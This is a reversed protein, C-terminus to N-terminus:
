QQAPWKGMSPGFDDATAPRGLADDNLTITVPTPPQASPPLAAGIDRAAQKVKEDLLLWAKAMADDAMKELMIDDINTLGLPTAATLAKYQALLMKKGLDAKGRLQEGNKLLLNIAAAEIQPIIQAAITTLVKERITTWDFNKM